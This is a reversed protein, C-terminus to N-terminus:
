NMNKDINPYDQYHEFGLGKDLWIRLLDAKTAHLYNEFLPVDRGLEIQPIHDVISVSPFGASENSWVEEGSEDYIIAKMIATGPSSEPILYYSCILAGLIGLFLISKM